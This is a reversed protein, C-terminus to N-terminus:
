KALDIDEAKIFFRMLEAFSEVGIKQMISQRRIEITRMSLDLSVAVQKNLQGTSIMKLVTREEETLLDLKEKATQRESLTQRRGADRRMAECIAQWLEQETGTKQLYTVAGNKMAKVASSVNAHATIIIVPLGIKLYKLREQLETGSLGLMRLDTVLCGPADNYQELFEEASAFCKSTLGMSEVMAAVSKRASAEDDVVFVTASEYMM